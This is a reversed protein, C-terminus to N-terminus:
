VSGEAKRAAFVREVRLACGIAPVPRKAGLAELLTDYRGGGAVQVPGEADNSWMEFVFGTYYGMNRGFRAAFSVQEPSVGLKALVDLRGEMAKVPGDLRLRASKALARIDALAKEAPGSIALVSTILDAIKGDLKLAAADAAQELLREAIEERTRLGMPAEGMMDLLGEVAAHAESDSLGGLHALLRQQDSKMGATLRQLLQEFYGHRWVHRKLRARWQSPVDLAEILASFLELDGLKVNFNRLGAARLGLIALQLVEGDGAARDVLGLLEVGTQFFQAPRHPEAPQYRFAPGHYSLRSPFSAGMEVALRCTPITLEPRLCLEHGAPDSLVYTRRRIEEGSRDLFIDAPQLISPEVRGYGREAFLKLIAGSQTDLAALM